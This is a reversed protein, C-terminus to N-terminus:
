ICRKGNNSFIACSRSRNDIITRTGVFLNLSGSFSNSPFHFHAGYVRENKAMVQVILAAIKDKKMLTDILKLNYTRPM